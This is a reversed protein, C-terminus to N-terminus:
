IEYNGTKNLQNNQLIKEAEIKASLKDINKVLIRSFLIICLIIGLGLLKIFLM